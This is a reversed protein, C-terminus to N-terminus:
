YVIKTSRTNKKNKKVINFHKKHITYGKKLKAYKM